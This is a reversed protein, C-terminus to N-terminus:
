PLVKMELVRILRKCEECNAIHERREDGVPLDQAEDCPWGIYRRGYASAIRLLHEEFTEIKGVPKPPIVVKPIDHFFDYLGM